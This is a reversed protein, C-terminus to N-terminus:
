ADAVPGSSASNPGPSATQDASSKEAPSIESAPKAAVSQIALACPPKSSENKATDRSCGMGAISLTLSAIAAWAHVRNM